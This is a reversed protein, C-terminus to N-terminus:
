IVESMYCYGLIRNQMTRVPVVLCNSDNSVKVADSIAYILNRRRDHYDVMGYQKVIDELYM